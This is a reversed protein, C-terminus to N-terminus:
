FKAGAKPSKGQVKFGGMTHVAQPTLGLHGMVPIGAEVLREITPAVNAGGELKVSQAGSEKLIRGANKLAELPDGQYSMFPMDCVVHASNTGRVVARAHYIMDDLTVSITNQQGQIVMGLSDGVLIMEVGAQDILHAFTADYATLMTIPQGATKMAQIQITTRPKKNTM